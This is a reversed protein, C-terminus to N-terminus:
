EFRRCEFFNEIHCPVLARLGLLYQAFVNQFQKQLFLFTANFFSLSNVFYAAIEGSIAIRSKITTNMESSGMQSFFNEKCSNLFLSPKFYKAIIGAAVIMQHAALDELMKNGFSSVEDVM